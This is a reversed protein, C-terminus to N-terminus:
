TQWVFVVECVRVKGAETGKNQKGGKMWGWGCEGLTRKTGEADDGNSSSDGDDTNKSQGVTGRDRWSTETKM